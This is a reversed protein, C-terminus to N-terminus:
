QGPELRAVIQASATLRHLLHVLQQAGQQATGDFGDKGVAQVLVQVPHLPLQAADGVLDSAGVEALCRDDCGLALRLLGWDCYGSWIDTM